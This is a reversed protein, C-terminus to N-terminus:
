WDTAGITPIQLSLKTYEQLNSPVVKIIIILLYKVVTIFKIMLSIIGM